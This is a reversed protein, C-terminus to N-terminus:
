DGVGLNDDFAQLILDTERDEHRRFRQRFRAFDDGLFGLIYASSKHYLVRGAHEVIGCLEVFLREHETRLEDAVESLRLLWLSRPACFAASAPGM